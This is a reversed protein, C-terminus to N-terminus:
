VKTFWIEATEELTGGIRQRETTEGVLGNMAVGHISSGGEAHVVSFEASAVTENADDLTAGHSRVENVLSGM